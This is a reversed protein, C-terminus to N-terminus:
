MASLRRLIGMTAPTAIGPVCAPQYRLQFAQLIDATTVVVVNSVGAAPNAPDSIPVYAGDRTGYAHEQPYGCAELLSQIQRRTGVPEDQVGIPWLGIGAGALQQWPFKTGPDDKRKPAIDSHGVINRPSIGPNRALITGCLEILAAIQAAPYDRSNGDLNVIEIGISRGNVDPRGRWMSLGAHWAVEHDELIKWAVGDEALLYHSSVNQYRLTQLSSELDLATFHLVLTDVEETRPRFSASQIRANNITLMIEM